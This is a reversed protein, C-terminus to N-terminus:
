FSLSLPLPTSFFLISSYFLPSSIAVSAGEHPSHRPKRHPGKPSQREATGQVCGSGAFICLLLIINRIFISTSIIILISLILIPILILNLYFHIHIFSCVCVCVCMCVCVYVCVCVCMYVCVCMCVCVCVCRCDSRLVSCQPASSKLGDILLM